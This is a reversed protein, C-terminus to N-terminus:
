ISFYTNPLNTPFALAGSVPPLFIYPNGSSDVQTTNSTTASSLGNAGAFQGYLNGFSHNELYIVVVHKIKNEQGPRPPVDNKKCSVFLLSISFLSILVLMYQNKQFGSNGQFSNTKKM